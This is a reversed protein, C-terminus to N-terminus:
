SVDPGHGLANNKRTESDRRTAAYPSRAEVRVGAGGDKGVSIGAGIGVVVIEVLM